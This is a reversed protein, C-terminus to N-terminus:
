SGVPPREGSGCGQLRTKWERCHHVAESRATDLATYGTTRHAVTGRSGTTASWLEPAVSEGAVTDTVDIRTESAVDGDVLVDLHLEKHFDEVDDVPLLDEAVVCCGERVPVARRVDNRIDSTGSRGKACRAGGRAREVTGALHLEGGLQEELGDLRLRSVPSRDFRLGTENTDM